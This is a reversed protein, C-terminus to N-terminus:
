RWTQVTTWTLGDDESVAATANSSAYVLGDQAWLGAGSTQVGTEVPQEYVQRFPGGSEEARWVSLRPYILYALFAGDPSRKMQLYEGNLGPAARKDVEWDTGGNHSTWLELTHAGDPWAWFAMDGPPTDLIYDGRHTAVLTRLQRGDRTDWWAELQGSASTARPEPNTGWPRDGVAPSVASGDWEMPWAHATATDPDLSCWTQRWVGLCQFWLRPDAPRIERAVHTVPRVTGTVDVLWEGGNSQDFVLFIGDRPTSVYLDVGTPFLPRVYTTTEYSDTTLALGTFEFPGRDRCPRTCQVFWLSMRVEPDDPAVATTWLQASPHNVVEEPTMSKPFPKPKEPGPLATVTPTPVVPAPVVPVPEVPDPPATDRGLVNAGVVGMAVVAVVTAAAALSTRRRGNSRARARIGDPDVAPPNLGDAVHRAARTLRQELTM